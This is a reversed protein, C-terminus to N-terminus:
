QVKAPYCRHFLKATRYTDDDRLLRERPRALRAPYGAQRLHQGRGMNDLLHTRKPTTTESACTTTNRRSALNDHADLDRDRAGDSWASGRHNDPTNNPARAAETALEPSPLQSPRVDLQVPRMVRPVGSAPCADRWPRAGTLKTNPLASPGKNLESIRLILLLVTALNLPESSLM